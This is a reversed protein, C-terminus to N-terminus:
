NQSRPRSNNTRYKMKSIENIKHKGAVIHYMLVAKLQPVNKLLDDFAGKPLKAFADDNPAFVTLPGTSRLTEVLNQQKFQQSLCGSLELRM